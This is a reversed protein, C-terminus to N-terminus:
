EQVLECGSYTAPDPNNKCSKEIDRKEIVNNIPSIPSPDVRNMEVKTGTGIESCYCVYDKKCSTIGLLAVMSLPLIMKKM